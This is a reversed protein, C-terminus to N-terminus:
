LKGVWMATCTRKPYAKRFKARAADRDAAKIVHQVKGLGTIQGTVKFKRM